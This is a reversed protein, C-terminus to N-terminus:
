TEAGVTGCLRCPVCRVLHLLFPLGLPPLLQLLSTVHGVLQGGPDIFMVRQGHKRVRGASKVHAVNSHISYGIGDCVEVVHRSLLYSSHVWHLNALQCLMTWPAIYTITMFTDQMPTVNCNLYSRIIPM